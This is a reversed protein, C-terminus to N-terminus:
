DATCAEKESTNVDEAPEDLFLEEITKGFRKAIMGAEELTFRSLGNEKKYYTGSSKFGLMESMEEGSVDMSRRLSRLKKNAM